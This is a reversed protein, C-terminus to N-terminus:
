KGSRSLKVKEELENVKDVLEHIKLLFPLLEKTPVVTVLDDGRNVITSSTFEFPPHEIMGSNKGYSKFKHIM